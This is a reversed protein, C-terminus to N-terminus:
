IKEDADTNTSSSTGNLIKTDVEEGDCESHGPDAHTMNEAREDEIENNEISSEMEEKEMHEVGDNNIDKNKGDNAVLNANAESEVIEETKPNNQLSNAVETSAADHIDNSDGEEKVMNENQEEEIATNSESEDAIKEPNELEDSDPSSTTDDASIENREDSLPDLEVDDELLLETEADTLNLKVLDNKISELVEDLKAALDYDEEEVAGALKVEVDALKKMLGKAAEVNEEDVEDSRRSGQTEDQKEITETVAGEKNYNESDNTDHQKNQMKNDEDKITEQERELKSVLEEWGGFKDGLSQGEMKLADIQGQLVLAGIEKVTNTSAKGCVENKTELLSEIRNALKEMAAKGAVKEKENAMEKEKELEKQVKELECQAEDRKLAAESILTEGLEKLRAQAEKIEKSARGATRFDRKAAAQKKEADLSPLREIISKNENELSSLSEESAKVLQAAESVAAECKVVNVQLQALDGDEAESTERIHEFTVENATIDKFKRTMEIETGISEMIENFQLLAESHAKVEAEHEERLKEYTSQENKWEERSERVSSEKKQVRTIQRQFNLLIKSIEVDQNKIDLRLKEEEAEKSRLTERIKEIESQVEKLKSESEDRKDEIESTQEGIAQDLEKREIKVLEEERQLQKSEGNLREEENSLQKATTAFKEIADSHNEAKEQKKKFGVFEKEALEFCSVVGSVVAPTQQDLQELAKSINELIATCEGKERNHGDLVVQLRDALEFDEEEAADLQQTETQVIQQSALREKALAVFREELLMTRQERLEAVKQMARQVDGRFQQVLINMLQRPSPPSVAMTGWSPATSKENLDHSDTKNQTCHHPPNNDSTHREMESDREQLSMKLQRDAMAKKMDSQERLLRDAPTEHQSQAPSPISQSSHHSLNSIAANSLPAAKRSFNGSNSRSLSKNADSRRRGFWSLPRSKAAMQAQAQEAARAAEAYEDDVDKAVQDSSDKVAITAATEEEDRLKSKLFEEARRNAEEAQDKVNQPTDAVPTIKESDPLASPPPPPPPPSPDYNNPMQPNPISHIPPPNSYTAIGSGVRPARSRRKIERKKTSAGGFTVGAGAPPVSVSADSNSNEKDRPLTASEKVAGTLPNSKISSSAEDQDTPAAAATTAPPVSSMFSFGSSQSPADGVPKEVEKMASQQLFSFGSDTAITAPESKEELDASNQQLFSFGSENATAVESSVVETTSNEQLFSFGSEGPTPGEKEEVQAANSIAARSEASNETTSNQQLFSFGSESTSPVEEEEVEAPIKQLFSFGSDINSSSPVTAAAATDDAMFSFGSTEPKPAPADVIPQDSSKIFSFGSENEKEKNDSGGKV